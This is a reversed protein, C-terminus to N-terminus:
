NFPDNNLWRLFMDLAREPQDMPVMHGADFVRLFTLPGFSRAEGAAQGEYTWTTKQASRFGSSGSWELSLTFAESGYWHVIFDADGSFILTRVGARDLLPQVDNVYPRMWDAGVLQYLLNIRYNCSRWRRSTGLQEMVSPTRLYEELASFDYCLNGSECEIRIDYPNLNSRALKIPTIQVFNCSLGAWVCPAWSDENYCKEIRELCAPLREEMLDCVRQDLVQIGYSNNCGMQPYYPYQTLPDVLANGLAISRLNIQINNADANGDIIRTALAPIYRGAYSEGALGFELEAYKPFAEFFLQFFDYVHDAYQRTNITFNGDTYSYGAGSPADIFIMSANNIWTHPNPEEFPVGDKEVITCPGIREALMGVMSSCGPGGNHFAVFHKSDKQRSEFFWFFYHNENDIDVYGSYQQVDPACLTPEQVRLQVHALAPNKSQIVREIAQAAGALLLLAIFAHIMHGSAPTM